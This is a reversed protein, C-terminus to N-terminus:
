FLHETEQSKQQKRNSSGPYGEPDRVKVIGSFTKSVKYLLKENQAFLNSKTNENPFNEELARKRKKVEEFTIDDELLFNTQLRPLYFVEEEDIGVPVSKSSHSNQSNQHANFVIIIVTSTLCILIIVLIVLLRRLMIPTNSKWSFSDEVFSSRPFVKSRITKITSDWTTENYSSSSSFYLKLM